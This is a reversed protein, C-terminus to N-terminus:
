RNLKLVPNWGNVMLFTRFFCAFDEVRKGLWPVYELVDRLAVGEWEANSIAGTYWTLGEVQAM